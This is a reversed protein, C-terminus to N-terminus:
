RMLRSHTFLSGWTEFWPNPSEFYNPDDHKSTVASQILAYQRAMRSLGRLLRPPDSIHYLGGTCLVLDFTRRTREVYEYVDEQIFNVPGLRLHSAMCWCRQIDELNRDVGILVSDPSMKQALFGYYGDACFLDLISLNERQNIDLLATKIFPGIVAQKRAQQKMQDRNQLRGDETAFNTQVGLEAFDHYWPRMRYITEVFEQM